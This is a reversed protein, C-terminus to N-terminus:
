TLTLRPHSRFKLPITCSIYCNLQLRVKAVVNISEEDGDIASSSTWGSRYGKGKTKGFERNPENKFTQTMRKRKGLRSDRVNGDVLLQKRHMKKTKYSTEGLSLENEPERRFKEQYRLNTNKTRQAPASGQREKEDGIEVQRVPQHSIEKHNPTVKRFNIHYSHSM